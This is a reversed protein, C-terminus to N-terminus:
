LRLHRLHADIGYHPNPIVGLLSPLGELQVEATLEVLVLTKLGRARWLVTHKLISMMKQVAQDAIARSLDMISIETLGNFLESPNTRTDPIAAMAKVFGTPGLFQDSYNEQGQGFDMQPPELYKFRKEREDLWNQHIQKRFGFRLTQLKTGSGSLAHFLIPLSELGEKNFPVSTPYGTCRAVSVAGVFSRSTDVTLGTFNPLARFARLLLNTARPNKGTILTKHNLDYGAYGRMYKGLTIEVMSMTDLKQEFIKRMKDQLVETSMKPNFMLPSFVITKIYRSRSIMIKARYSRGFPWNRM